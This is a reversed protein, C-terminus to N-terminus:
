KIEVINVNAPYVFRDCGYDRGWVKGLGKGLIVVATDDETDKMYVPGNLTLRFCDGSKLGEFRVRIKKKM